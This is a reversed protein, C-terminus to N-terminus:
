ISSEHSGRFQSDNQHLDPQGLSLKRLQTTIEKGTDMPLTIHFSTGTGLGSSVTITGKHAEIIALGIALGLGTGNRAEAVSVHGSVDTKARKGRYFRDFIHPLDEQRIGPGNDTIDIIAFDASRSLKVQIIGSSDQRGYKLANDIIIILLQKIRDSDINAVIRLSGDTALFISREGANLREQDVASAALEWLDAPQKQLPRGADFRALTFMDAVLRSLRESEFKASYVIHATEQSQIAGSRALVDLYGRISTLPTKLEHSADALFQRIRSESEDKSQIIETMVDVMEDFAFAVETIEDNRRMPGARQSLDGNTIARAAQAVRSLGRLGSHTLFVGLLIAMGIWVGLVSILFIIFNHEDQQISNLSQAAYLVAPQLKTTNPCPADPRYDYAIFLGSYQNSGSSFSYFNDAGSQAAKTWEHLYAGRFSALRAINLGFPVSGTDPGTLAKGTSINVLQVSIVDPLTALVDAAVTNQFAESFTQCVFASGQMHTIDSLFQANQSIAAARMNSTFIQDASQYLLSRVMVYVVGGLASILVAFILVFSITLRWQLSTRFKKQKGSEAASGQEASSM